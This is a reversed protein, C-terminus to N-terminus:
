ANQESPHGRMRERKFVSSSSCSNLWVSRRALRRPQLQHIVLHGRSSRTSKATWGFARSSSASIFNTPQSRCRLAVTWQWPPCRCLHTISRVDGMFSVCYALKRERSTRDTTPMSAVPDLTTKPVVPRTPSLTDLRGMRRLDPRRSVSAFVHGASARQYQGASSPLDSEGRDPHRRGLLPVQWGQQPVTMLPHFVVRHLV